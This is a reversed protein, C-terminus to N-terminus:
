LCHVAGYYLRATAAKGPAAHAAMAQLEAKAAKDSAAKAAEAKAKRRAKAQEATAVKAAKKIKQQALQEKAVAAACIAATKTHNLFTKPVPFTGFKGQAFVQHDQVIPLCM